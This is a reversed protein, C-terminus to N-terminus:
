SLLFCVLSHIIRITWAQMAHEKDPFPLLPEPANVLLAWHFLCECVIALSTVEGRQAVLESDLFAAAPLGGKSTDMEM